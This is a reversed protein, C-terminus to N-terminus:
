ISIKKLENYTNVLSERYKIKYREYERIWYEKLNHIMLYELLIYQKVERISEIYNKNYYKIGADIEGMVIYINLLCLVNDNIDKTIDYQRNYDKASNLKEKLEIVKQTLLDTAILMAKINKLNDVFAEYMSISLEYPDKLVDLLKICENINDNTYGDFIIRKIIVDYYESQEIGIARFTQWNSFLLINSGTSLRKFIKILLETAEKGNHDSPAISTLEKYYKKVKFRWKSRKDKSVVKNPVAYYENDVNIIFTNIDEKLEEFSLKSKEPKPNAEYNKIFDDIDTEEKKKKPILKYLRAIINELQKKDYKELEKKLEKVLM